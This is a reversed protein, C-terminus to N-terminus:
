DRPLELPDLYRGISRLYNSIAGVLHRRPGFDLLIDKVRSAAPEDLPENICYRSGVAWMDCGAELLVTVLEPVTLPRNLGM